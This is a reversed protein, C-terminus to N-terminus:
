WWPPSRATSSRSRETLTSCTSPRCRPPPVAPARPGEPTPKTWWTPTRTSRCTCTSVSGPAITPRTASQPLLGTGALTRSTWRSRTAAAGPSQLTRTVTWARTEGSVGPGRRSRWRWSRNSCRCVSRAHSRKLRVDKKRGKAAPKWVRCSLIIFSKKSNQLFRIMHRNTLWRRRPIRIAGSGPALM